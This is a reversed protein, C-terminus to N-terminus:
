DMGSASSSFMKEEGDGLAARRLLRHLIRLDNADPIKKPNM